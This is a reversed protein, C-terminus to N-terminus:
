EGNEKICKEPRIIKKIYTKLGGMSTPLNRFYELDCFYYRCDNTFDLLPCKYCYMPNELEIKVNM